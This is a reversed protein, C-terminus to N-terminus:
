RPCYGTVDCVVKCATELLGCDIANAPTAPLAFAATVALTALVRRM